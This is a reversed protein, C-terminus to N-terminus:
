RWQFFLLSAGLHKATGIFFNIEEGLFEVGELALLLAQHLLEEGTARPNLNGGRVGGLPPLVLVAADFM